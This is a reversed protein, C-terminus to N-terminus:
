LVFKSDNQILQIVEAAETGTVLHPQYNCSPTTGSTHAPYISMQQGLYEGDDSFTFVARLIMTELARVEVNGGFCFNGLSYFVYRNNIIEAGELIHPHHMIVLDAGAEIAWTAMYKQSSNHHEAYEQGAHFAFVIANVGEEEKLRKMESICWAKHTTVNSSYLSFFAIKIGDKEYIYVTNRVFYGIGASELTERTSRFGQTGFDKTHNNALSVAEISADTLINVYDTPARFRYQKKTDEQATSDSIVGELNVVTLDDTAFLSQVKEFFYSTGYNEYFVRFSDNRKQAWAEGGLTVDGTFTMTVTKDALAACPLLLLLFLSVAWLRLKQM